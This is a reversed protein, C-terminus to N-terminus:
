PCQVQAPFSELITCGVDPCGAAHCALEATAYCCGNAVFGCTEANPAGPAVCPMLVDSTTADESRTQTQSSGCAAVLLAFAFSSVLCKVPHTPFRNM